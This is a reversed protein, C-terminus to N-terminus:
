IANRQTDNNIALILHWFIAILPHAFDEAIWFLANLRIWLRSPCECLRRVVEGQMTGPCVYFIRIFLYRHLAGQM